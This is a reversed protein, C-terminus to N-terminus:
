CVALWLTQYSELGCHLIGDPGPQLIRGSLLDCCRGPVDLDLKGPDLELELRESSVNHLCLIKAQGDPSARLLSFVKKHLNLVTQRGHPHFARQRNRLKLLHAIGSYVKQRLSGAEALEERLKPLNLKERNIARWQRTQRVGAYNNRSGLLNHIYIGPIGALSFQIAHATLFRAISVQLDEGPITLADFFTINLEYPSRTGDSNNKYSVEGGHLRTMEVLRTIEAGPLIEQVALLGIGDHTALINFFATQGSLPKLNRAWESLFVATGKDLAHLVLPPLAFQYVMQAENAGNGFYSINENHPVNTETLLILQPDVAQLVDRFLQVVLHTQPLNLCTTGIEKWLYGIADLRLLAASKSVYFLLLEIMKILVTENRYNLDIQDESFTTWLYRFGRKTEFATLLPLTRPRSVQSVDTDKPVAIFFDEYERNGQFYEQFWRSQASIHNVVADYMLAFDASLRRLDEWEGWAPNVKYYDIVAFGDDSSYPYFPLIHIGSFLGQLYDGSFVTLNQLPKAEEGFFQDGYTILITATQDMRVKKAELGPTMGTKQQFSQIMQRIRELVLASREAGYLLVLKDLISEEVNAVLRMGSDSMVSM